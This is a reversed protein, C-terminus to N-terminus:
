AMVGLREIKNRLTSRAMGLTRAANTINNNHKRLAKSIMSIEFNRCAQELNEGRILGVPDNAFRGARKSLDDRVMDATIKGSSDTDSCLSRISNSLDRINGDWSFSVLLDMAAADIEYNQNTEATVNKLQLYIMRPICARRESLAPVSLIKGSIRFWLDPMFNNNEALRRVDVSAATILRFNSERVTTDGLRQYKGDQLVRLLQGQVEKSLLHLEDLFLTGGNAQKIYGDHEKIAGTFAGKTHGFLRSMALEELGACNVVVLEGKVGSLKHILEALTSKGTGTTGAMHISLSQLRASTKITDLLKVMSPTEAIIGKYMPDHAEGSGSIEMLRMRNRKALELVTVFSDECFPKEIFIGGFVQFMDKMVPAADNASMLCTTIFPNRKRAEKIITTGTIESKLDYDSIVIEYSNSQLLDLAREPNSVGTFEIQDGLIIHIAELINEHDDIVLTKYKNTQAKM